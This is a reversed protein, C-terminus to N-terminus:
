KAPGFAEMLAAIVISSATKHWHEPHEKLFKAVIACIQLSPIGDPINYKFYTADLVGIVYGHFEFGRCIDPAGHGIGKEYHKMCSVLSNGDFMGAYSKAVFSPSLLLLMICVLCLTKIKM